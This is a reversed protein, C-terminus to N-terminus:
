FGGTVGRMSRGFGGGFGGGPFRPFFFSRIFMFIIVVLLLLLTVKSGPNRQPAEEPLIEAGSTKQIRTEAYQILKLVGQAPQQARMAPKLIEALMRKSIADPIDGELGYGVELRMRREAPAIVLLLGRDEGKKGMGWKEAVELSYSEIELGQLSQPVLVTMQANNKKKFEVLSNEITSKDSQSFLGVEDVVPGSLTPVQIAGATLCQLLALAFFFRM